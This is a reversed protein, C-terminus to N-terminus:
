KIRSIIRSHVYYLKFIITVKQSYRILMVSRLAYAGYGKAQHMHLDRTAAIAVDISTPKDEDLITAQSSGQYQSYTGNRLRKQREQNLNQQVLLYYYQTNLM